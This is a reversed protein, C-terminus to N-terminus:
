DEAHQLLHAFTLVDWGCAAEDALQLLPLSEPPPPWAAGRASICVPRVSCQACVGETRGPHKLAAPCRTGVARRDPPSTNQHRGETVRTVAHPGPWSYVSTGM